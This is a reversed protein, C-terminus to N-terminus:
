RKTGLFINNRTPLQCAKFKEANRHPHPFTPLNHVRSPNVSPRLPQKSKNFKLNYKSGSSSNSPLPETSTFTCNSLPQTLNNDGTSYMMTYNNLPQTLSMEGSSNMITSNILPQTLNLAGVFSEDCISMLDDTISSSSKSHEGKRQM